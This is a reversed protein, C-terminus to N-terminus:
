NVSPKEVRDVFVVEVPRKTEELRLGLEEELVM